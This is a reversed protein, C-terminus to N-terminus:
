VDNDGEPKNISYLRDLELTLVKIQNELYKIRDNQQLIKDILMDEGIPTDTRACTHSYEIQEWQQHFLDKLERLKRNLIVEKRLTVQM